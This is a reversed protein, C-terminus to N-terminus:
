MFESGVYVLDNDVKLSVLCHKPKQIFIKIGGWVDKDLFDESNNSKKMERYKKEVLSIIEEDIKM